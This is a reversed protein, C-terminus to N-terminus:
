TFTSGRLIEYMKIHFNLNLNDVDSPPGARTHLWLHNATSIDQSQDATQRLSQIKKSYLHGSFCSSSCNQTM